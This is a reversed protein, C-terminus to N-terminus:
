KRYLTRVQVVLNGDEEPMSFVVYNSGIQFVTWPAPFVVEGKLAGTTDHVLWHQEEDTNARYLLTWLNGGDDIVMKEFSPLYKPVQRREYDERVALAAAEGGIGRVREAERQIHKTVEASTPRRTKLSSRIIRVVKGESGFVRIDFGRLDNHYYFRGGAVGFAREFWLPIAKPRPGLSIGTAIQKETEGIRNVRLVDFLPASPDTRPQPRFMVVSGDALIGLVETAEEALGTLGVRRVFEGESDLFTLARNRMDFIVVTDNRTVGVFDIGAFEKPGRGPRALAKRYMGLPGFLRPAGPDAEREVGGWRGGSSPSATLGMVVVNGNALRAVRTFLFYGSMAAGDRGITTFGSAEWGWNLRPIRGTVVNTVIEVGASDKRVIKVSDANVHESSHGALGVGALPLACTLFVHRLMECGEKPLFREKSTMM